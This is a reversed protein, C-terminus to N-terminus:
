RLKCLEMFILMFSPILINDNLNSNGELLGSVVCVLVINKNTVTDFAALYHKCWLSVISTALIFAATGEVTKNTGPWRNRGLNKGVISALSDGVGLSIVGVLSHNILLPFSVGIILYLYSIIIPGKDDRFDTFSRLQSNIFDGFPALNLYRFYEVILFLVLTGAIALVTFEPDFTMQPILLPLLAFHWIKRSMNLSLHSKFAFINPVLILLSVLWCGLIKMRTPSELIYYCLWVLANHRDSVHLQTLVTAPFILAFSTLLALTRAYPHVKVLAFSLVYNAAIASFFGYLCIRLISFHLSESDIMYLVNTLLISFLNCDVKDLSKLESVQELAYCIVTNILVAVMNRRRKDYFEYNILPVALQLPLRFYVPISAANFAMSCNALALERNFLLAIMFPLFLLYVTNFSPLFDTCMPKVGDEQSHKKATRSRYEVVAGMGFGIVTTWLSSFLAVDDKTNMFKDAALRITVGIIAAQVVYEGKLLEYLLRYTGTFREATVQSM